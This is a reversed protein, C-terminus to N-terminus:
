LAPIGYRKLGKFNHLQIQKTNSNEADVKLHALLKSGSEKIIAVHSEKKVRPQFKGSIDERRLEDSKRGDFSFVKLVLYNHQILRIFKRSKIKERAAKYPTPCLDSFM